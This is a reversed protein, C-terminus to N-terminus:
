SQCPMKGERAVLVFFPLYGHWPPSGTVEVMDFLFILCLMFKYCLHIIESLPCYNKKEGNVVQTKVALALM